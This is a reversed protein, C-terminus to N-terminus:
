VTTRTKGASSLPQAMRQGLAVLNHYFRGPTQETRLNSPMLALNRDGAVCRLTARTAEPTKGTSPLLVLAQSSIRSIASM